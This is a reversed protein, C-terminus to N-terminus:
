LTEHAKCLGRTGMVLYLAQLPELLTQAFALRKTSSGTSTSSISHKTVIGPQLSLRMDEKELEIIIPVFFPVHLSLGIDVWIKISRKM